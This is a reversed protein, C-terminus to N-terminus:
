EKQPPEEIDSNAVYWATFRRLLNLQSRTDNRIDLLVLMVQGSAIIFLGQITFFVGTTVVILMEQLSTNASEQFASIIEGYLASVIVGFGWGFLIILWGLVITFRSIISLTRYEKM